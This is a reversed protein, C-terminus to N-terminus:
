NQPHKCATERKRDVEINRRHITKSSCKVQKLNNEIFLQIPQKLKSKDSKQLKFVNEVTANTQNKVFVNNGFRSITNGTQSVFSLFTDQLIIKSWLQFQPFCLTDCIHWFNHCAIFMKQVIWTVTKSKVKLYMRTGTSRGVIKTREM